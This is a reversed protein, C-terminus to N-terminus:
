IRLHGLCRSLHSFFLPTNGLGPAHDKVGENDREDDAGEQELGEINWRARHLLRQEDAVVKEHRFIGVVVAVIRQREGRRQEGATDLRRLGGAAIGDYEPKLSSIRSVVSPTNDAQGAIADLNNAPNEM